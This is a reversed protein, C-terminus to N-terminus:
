PKPFSDCEMAGLARLSAIQAANLGRIGTINLREYPRDHRLTLRQECSELDWVRIAGDDGCSALFKGDPSVKLSRITGQHAARTSICEATDVDWFSLMGDGGGSILRYGYDRASSGSRSWVAAHVTDPHGAFTHVCTASQVDWVFLEGGGRNGSSSSLYRGDPSWALSTVNGHHGRLQLLRTGDASKWLYVNGDDGGGALVSGDPCWAVSFFVYGRDAGRVWRLRKERIDWVCMGQDFTGVALLGGDSSWALGMGVASFDEITQHGEGSTTDWLRMVMDWGCSAVLRGDPSWGVGSVIGRHGRLNRAPMGGCMDWLTVLGDTDGSVLHTGDPSWDLDWLSIAYGQMVRVCQKSEIDWVRLTGDNSGSLLSHSDPTFAIGYIDSSTHGSLTARVTRQEVDWLRIAKEYSCSALIRGDPSFAVRNTASTEGEFTHLLRGSAVKWLKIKRDRWGASALTRGDPAFALSLAAPAEWSSIESLLAAGVKRMEWLRLRGDFCSSAFLRGDPSWAVALVHAPHQLSHLITGTKTDFVHVTPSLGCSVLLCADPSFALMQPGNHWGVWLLADRPSGVNRWSSLNWLKVIGDISGSALMHGKPSFALAQVIDTHAQFLMLLTRGGEEWIRVEGRIGSAAWLGGDQSIAVSWIASVAETWVTDRILAFSLKAGQMEIGQLYASRICFHSLDLGNLNGRQLRLLAILNAPGYGQASYTRERLGKLLSVLVDEVTNIASVEPIPYHEEGAEAEQLEGIPGLYPSKLDALLPTLLLREQAQRVYESVQSLSLGHEILRNLHGLKIEQCGEAVLHATVYELVVSQLTFSGARKGREILSRRRLGLLAELLQVPPKPPVLLAQLEDPTIPERSIALWCLVSQELPGLRVFQEDLLDTISGFIVTSVGLFLGIAGGFLDVITEAVIRLALPNGSYAEILCAEEAETGILGKEELLPLCEAVDLGTLHLSHVLTYRGSLERLDAPQERSTILLCSQHGGEAIRHLLRGYGEFGPSFHGRPDGSALLCELNDLVLLVRNKCLHELLESIRPELSTPVARLHQPSLVQLCDDLLAECSPADRLSRFVVVEFHQALQYMANVSLASKGIGGMGLVSVVRSHEQVIWESLLALEEERGYFAPVALADGWDM